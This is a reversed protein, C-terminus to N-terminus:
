STEWRSTIEAAASVGADRYARVLTECFSRWTYARAARANILGLARTGPPDMWLRCIARQMAARDDAPVHAGAYGLPVTSVVACGAAMAQLIAMGFTEARSPLFFISAAEFLVWLRPGGGPFAAVRVNPPAAAQLQDLEAGWGCLEFPIEPLARATELVIDLGKRRDLKGVFLVKNAKPARPNFADVDVGPCAVYTRSSQLGLAEAQRLSFESLFVAADYPRTILYKEWFKWLRGAMPGRMELWARGFLGLCVVVVPIGLRRAAYLSPLAAHYTFTQIVDAGRAEQMIRAVALNMRYKHIPMRRTPVGEHSTVSPDGTALVHLDVGLERLGQAAHQVVHEGGGALDPPYLEHTLLVRM